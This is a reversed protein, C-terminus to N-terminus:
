PLHHPPLLHVDLVAILVFILILFALLLAIYLPFLLM